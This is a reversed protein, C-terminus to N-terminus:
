KKKKQSDFEIIKVNKNIRKNYIFFGSKYIWGDMRGDM